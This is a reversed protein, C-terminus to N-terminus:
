SNTLGHKLAERTESRFTHMIEDARSMKKGVSAGTYHFELLLDPCCNGHNHSQRLMGVGVPLSRNLAKRTETCFTRMSEDARLMKHGISTPKYRFELLLDPGCNGDDNFPQLNRIGIGVFITMKMRSYKLEERTESCSTHMRKDEGLV